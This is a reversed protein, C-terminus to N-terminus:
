GRRTCLWVSYQAFLREFTAHAEPSAAHDMEWRRILARLAAKDPLHYRPLIDDLREPWMLLEARLWVYTKLPLEPFEVPTADAPVFPLAAAAVAKELSNDGDPATQGKLPDHVPVKMTRTFETGPERPKFPLRGMQERFEAPVDLSLSTTVMDMPPPRVEPPRPGWAVVPLPPPPAPPPAVPRDAFSPSRVTVGDEGVQRDGPAWTFPAVPAAPAVSPAGQRVLEADLRESSRRAGREKEEPTSSPLARLADLLPALHEPAAGDFYLWANIDSV